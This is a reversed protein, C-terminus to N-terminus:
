LLGQHTPNFRIDYIDYTLAINSAVEEFNRKGVVTTSKSLSIMRDLTMLANDTDDTPYKYMYIGRYFSCIELLQNIDTAMDYADYYVEIDADKCANVLEIIAQRIENTIIQENWSLMVIYGKFICTNVHNTYGFLDNLANTYLSFVSQLLRFGFEYMIQKKFLNNNTQQLSLDTHPTANFGVDNLKLKTVTDSYSERTKLAKYAVRALRPRKRVVDHVINYIKDYDANNDDFNNLIIFAKKYSEHDNTYDSKLRQM